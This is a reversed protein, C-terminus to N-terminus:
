FQRQHVPVAPRNGLIGGSASGAQYWYKLTKFNKTVKIECRNKTKKLMAISIYQM